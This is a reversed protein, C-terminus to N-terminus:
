YRIHECRAAPRMILMQVDGIAREIFASECYALYFRWMRIFSESYGLERVEDIRALFRRHWRNLTTAYHPGIDELHIVRMDTQRTLTRTMDTVSTLCGGPFIYRKIFDVGTKYEDYRQDAITIAQLLMQGDAKLLECCKRFYTDHYEHGVAEIMEISVLKDFSGQLDRYDRFLLTIRDQLGADSIAQKAYDYQQQSITTTTVHCGYHRAAHIAFGGWGTGIEIVTDDASLDLKRCIRDLKEVAADELSTDPSDFYASSYMMKPDLWLKYFDNGLDYHAAINKRSGSRTNRNLAHFLKQMPAGLRGLGSDMKELVDRNRILVRLLDELEDCAWYGQIYAEGAGVSGGFAIDRYFKSNFVRLQITLPFDDTLKGFTAQSGAQSVIIQGVQLKELQAFVIRRALRDLLAPKSGPYALEATHMSNLRTSM